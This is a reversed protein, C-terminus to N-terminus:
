SPFLSQEPAEPAERPASATTLNTRKVLSTAHTEMPSGLAVVVAPVQSALLEWPCEGPRALLHRPVGISVVPHPVALPVLVVVAVVAVPEVPLLHFTQQARAVASVELAVM